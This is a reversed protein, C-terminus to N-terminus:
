NKLEAILAMLTNELATRAESDKLANKLMRNRELQRIISDYTTVLQKQRHLCPSNDILQEDDFDKIKNFVFNEVVSTDDEKELEVGTKKPHFSNFVMEMSKPHIPKREEEGSPGNETLQDAYLTRNQSLWQFEDTGSEEKIRALITKSTM